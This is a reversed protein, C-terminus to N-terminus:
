GGQAACRVQLLSDEVGGRLLAHLMEWDTGKSELSHTLLVEFLGPVDAGAEALERCPLSACLSLHPCAAPRDAQHTSGASRLPAM